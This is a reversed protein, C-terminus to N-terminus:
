EHWPALVKYLREALPHRLSAFMTSSSFSRRLLHYLAAEDEARNGARQGFSVVRLVICTAASSSVGWRGEEGGRGEGDKKGESMGEGDVPRGEIRTVMQGEGIGGNQCSITGDGLGVVVWACTVADVSLRSIRRCATALRVNRVSSSCGMEINRRFRFVYNRQELFTSRFLM